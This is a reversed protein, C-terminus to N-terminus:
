VKPKLISIKPNHKTNYFNELKVCCPFAFFILQLPDYLSRNDDFLHLFSFYKANGWHPDSTKSQISLLGFMVDSFIKVPLGTVFLRKTDSRMWHEMKTSDKAFKILHLNTDFM